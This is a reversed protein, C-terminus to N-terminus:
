PAPSVRHRRDQDGLRAEVRVEVVHQEGARARRDLRGAVLMLRDGDGARELQGARDRQGRAAPAEAGEDRQAHHDAAFGIMEFDDGLFARAASIARVSSPKAM